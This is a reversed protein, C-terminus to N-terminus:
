SYNIDSVRARPVALLAHLGVSWTFAYSWCFGDLEQKFDKDEFSDFSINVESDLVFPSENNVM